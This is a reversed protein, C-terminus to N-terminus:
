ILIQKIYEVLIGLLIWVPFHVFSIIGKWHKGKSLYSYNWLRIGIKLLPYGVLIEIMWVWIPYSLYRVIDNTIISEALDFGYSLGFAYIPFMWFSTHGMLAIKKKTILDFIATFAVEACIGFMGWFLIESIYM